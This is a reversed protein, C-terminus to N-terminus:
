GESILKKLDSLKILGNNLYVGSWGEEIDLDIDIAMKEAEALLWEMAERAAARAFIGIEIGGVLLVSESRGIAYEDSRWSKIQNHGIKEIAEELHSIAKDSDPKSKTM